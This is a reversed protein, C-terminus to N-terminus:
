QAFEKEGRALAAAEYDILARCSGLARYYDGIAVHQAFDLCVTRARPSELVGLLDGLLAVVMDHHITRGPEDIYSLMCALYLRRAPTTADTPNMIERGRLIAVRNEVELEVRGSARLVAGNVIMQEGDRLSIRLTM